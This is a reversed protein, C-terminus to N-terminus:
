WPGSYGTHIRLADTRRQLASLVDHIEYGIGSSPEVWLGIHERRLRGGGDFRNEVITQRWSVNQLTETVGRLTWANPNSPSGIRLLDNFSAGAAHAENALTAQQGAPSFFVRYLTLATDGVTTDAFGVSNKLRWRNLSPVYEFGLGYTGAGGFKARELARVRREVELLGTDNEPTKRTTTVSPVTTGTSSRRKIADQFKRNALLADVLADMDTTGSSANAIRASLADLERQTTAREAPNGRSGSRVELHENVLQAWADVSKIGSRLAPLGPLKAAGTDSM